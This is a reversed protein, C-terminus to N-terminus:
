FKSKLKTSTKFNAIYNKVDEESVGFNRLIQTVDNESSVATKVHNEEVGNKNESNIKEFRFPNMVNDGKIVGAQEYFPYLDKTQLIPYVELYTSRKFNRIIEEQSLYKCMNKIYKLSDDISKNILEFFDIYDRTISLRTGENVGEVNLVEIILRECIKKLNSPLDSGKKLYFMIYEYNKCVASFYFKETDVLKKTMLTLSLINTTISSDIICGYGGNLKRNLLAQSLHFVPMVSGCFLDGMTIIPALIQDDENRWFDYHGALSLYNIEHGPQAHFLGEQGYGTVRITILGKNKKILDKPDINLKELIGPRYGDILIDAKQTLQKFIQVQKPNKLDLIIPKKGDNLYSVFKMIENEQTPRILYVEAGFDLLIKALFSMPLYGELELVKVGQLLSSNVNNKM